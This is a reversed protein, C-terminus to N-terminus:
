RATTEYLELLEEPALDVPRRDDDFGLNSLKKRKHQFIRRLFAFYGSVDDYSRVKELVFGGISGRPHPYFADAPLRYADVVDYFTQVLASFASYEKWGPEATADLIISERAVGYIRRFGMSIGRAIVDRTREPPSEVFLNEGAPFEGPPVDLVVVNPYESAVASRMPEDDIATGGVYRFIFGPFAYPFLVNGFEAFEELFETDVLVEKRLLSPPIRHKIM